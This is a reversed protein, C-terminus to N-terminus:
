KIYDLYEEGLPMDGMSSARHSYLLEMDSNILFFAPLQYEDGEYEGHVLGYKDFLERKFALKKASEPSAEENKRAMAEALGASPVDYLSYLEKEPDCVMDLDLKLEEIGKECIEPTSQLVLLVQANKDEFAKKAKTLEIMDVQCSRCGFYRLFILFTYRKKSVYDSLMYAKEFPADFTVFNLAKM